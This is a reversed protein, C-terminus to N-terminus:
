TFIRWCLDCTNTTPNPARFFSAGPALRASARCPPATQINVRSLISSSISNATPMHLMPTRGGSETGGEQILCPLESHMVSQVTLTKFRELLFFIFYFLLLAANIRNSSLYPFKNWSCEHQNDMDLKIRPGLGLELLM